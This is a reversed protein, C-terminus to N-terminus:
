QYAMLTTLHALVEALLLQMYFYPFIAYSVTSCVLMMLMALVHMLMVDVDMPGDGQFGPPQGQM